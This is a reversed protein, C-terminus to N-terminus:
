DFGVDRKLPEPPIYPESRFNSDDIQKEPFGIDWVDWVKQWGRLSRYYRLRGAVYDEIAAELPKPDSLYWFRESM